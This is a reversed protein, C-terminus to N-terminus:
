QVVSQQVLTDLGNNLQPPKTVTSSGGFGFWGSSQKIQAKKEKEEKVKEAKISAVEKAWTHLDSQEIALM